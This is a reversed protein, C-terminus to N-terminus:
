QQRKYREVENSHSFFFAMEDGQVTVLANVMDPSAGQRIIEFKVAGDKYLTYNGAVAMGENDVATFTGDKFFEITATKGIQQWKGVVHPRYACSAILSFALITCLLPLGQKLRIKLMSNKSGREILRMYRSEIVVMVTHTARTPPLLGQSVRGGKSRTPWELGM